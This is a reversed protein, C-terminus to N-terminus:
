KRGGPGAIRTLAEEAQRRREPSRSRLVKRLAPVVRRAAPGRDGLLTAVTAFQRGRATLLARALAPVAKDGMGEIVGLVDDRVKAPLSTARLAALLFPMAAPGYGGLADLLIDEADVGLHRSGLGKLVGPVARPGIKALAEGATAAVSSRRGSSSGDELVVKVLAPVAGRAAPGMKALAGAAERVQEPDGSRLGRVCAKVTM